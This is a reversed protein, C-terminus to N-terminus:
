SRLQPDLADRLGDGIVNFSLVLLCLILSPLVLQYPYFAMAAQGASLLSGLSYSPPQLGIGLFSLVTESFIVAPISTATELILLGITNPLLHKIIVHFPSAGLAQSAMVYESERLKLIQGRIMRATGTWTTICLALLLQPYGNGFVVLLLTTVILSPISNLLEVIRMMIEDVYGGFYAMVGGYLCGFGVQIIAAIIAISLSTRLGGWVRSFLDRGMGDTGFWYESGPSLNKNDGVITMYDKGSLNPGIIAMIVLVALVVMFTLALKNKKLRRWADHWYSINARVVEDAHLQEQDVLKFRESSSSTQVSM